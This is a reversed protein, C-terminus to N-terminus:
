VVLPDILELEEIHQFDKINTTVLPLNEIIATAAIIFDGLSIKKIQRLHIAKQIVKDQIQFIRCQSFFQTALNNEFHNIKHYGLVEIQSVASVALSQNKLWKRLANRRIDSSYIIINSDLLVEM